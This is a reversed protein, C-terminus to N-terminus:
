SLGSRRQRLTDDLVRLEGYDTSTSTQIWIAAQGNAQPNAAIGVVSARPGWNRIQLTNLPLPPALKSRRRFPYAYQGDRDLAFQKLLNTPGPDDPEFDFNGTGTDNTDTWSFVCQTECRWDDHLVRQNNASDRADMVTGSVPESAILTHRDRTHNSFIVVPTGQPTSVYNALASDATTESSLRIMNVPTSLVSNAFESWYNLESFRSIDLIASVGSSSWFAPALVTRDSLNDSGSQLFTALEAMADWKQKNASMVQRNANNYVF